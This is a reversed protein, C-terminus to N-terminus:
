KVAHNVLSLLVDRRGITKTYRQCIGMFIQNRSRHKQSLLGPIHQVFLHQLRFAQFSSFKRDQISLLITKAMLATNKCQIHQHSYSQSLPFAAQHAAESVTAPLPTHRGHLYINLDTASVCFPLLFIFSGFTTLNPHKLSLLHSLFINM